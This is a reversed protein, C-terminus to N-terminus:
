STPVCFSSRRWAVTRIVAELAGGAMVASPTLAFYAEGKISVPPNPWNIALRPVQPYHVPVVFHPHYGGITLVFDGKEVKPLATPPPDYWAYFAFGGSLRCAKDIVFSNDTLLAEASILGAAPRISVKIALEVYVYPKLEAGAEKPLPLSMTSKGLLLIELDNGFKVVLLAFSNIVKFSNFKIGAALWYSGTRPPMVDNMARLVKPLDNFDPQNDAAKLLPFDAVGSIPPALLDRNYGFGAALGTVYFFSPGGLAKDLLGFIFVSPGDQGSVPVFSGFASLSFSKARIIVAGSYSDRQDPSTGRLFLGGIEIPPNNFDIGFGRLDFKPAFRTLPSTVSLGDLVLTLPGVTLSGDLSIIINGGKALYGVREFHVPGFSKQVNIWQIETSAGTSEKVPLDGPAPPTPDAVLSRQKAVIPVPLDLITNGLELRAAVSVGSLPQKAPVPALGQPLADNLAALDATTFQASAVFLRYALRITEAPPLAAGVLPLNSLNVGTGLDLGALVKTTNAAADRQIVLTASNLTIDFDPAGPALAGLLQNVKMATGNVNEFVAIIAKSGAGRSFLMDFQLAHDSEPSPKLSLTGGFTQSKRGKANTLVATFSATATLTGLALSGDCGFSFTGSDKEFELTFANVQLGGIADPLTLGSFEPIEHVLATILAGVELAQGAGDQGGAVRWGGNTISVEVRPLPVGALTLGAPSASPNVAMAFEFSEGPVMSFRTDQIQIDPPTPLGPLLQQVATKLSIPTNAAQMATLQLAPLDLAANFASGLVTVSGGIRATLKRDASFPSIILVQLSDLALSPLPDVLSLSLAPTASIAISMVEPVGGDTAISIVVSDLTLNPLAALISKPIIETGARGAVDELLRDFSVSAFKSSFVVQGSGPLLEGTIVASTHGAGPTGVTGVIAM